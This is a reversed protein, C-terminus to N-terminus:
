MITSMYFLDSSVTQTACCASSCNLWSSTKFVVRELNGLVTTVICGVSRVATVEMRHAHSLPLVCVCSIECVARPFPSSRGLAIGGLIMVINVHINM